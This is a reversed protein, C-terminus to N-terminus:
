DEWKNSLYVMLDNAKKNNYFCDWGTGTLEKWLDFDVEALANMYIQGVRLRQNSKHMALVKNNWDQFKDMM